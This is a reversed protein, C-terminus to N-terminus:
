STTLYATLSESSYTAASGYMFGTGQFGVFVRYPNRKDGEICTPWDLSGGPFEAVKGWTGSTSADLLNADTNYYIGFNNNVFGIIWLVPYSKGPAVAGFGFDYVELIDSAAGCRVWSAGGDTSRLFDGSPSAYDTPPNGTSIHGGAIFLHGAYGPVAKMKFHYGPGGIVNTANVNTWNAGADTTKFVGATDHYIYATQDTVQDAALPWRHQLYNFLFGTDSPSGPFTCQTWSTGSNATYWVGRGGGAVAIWKSATCL